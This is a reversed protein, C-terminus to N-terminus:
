SNEPLVQFNGQDRDHWNRVDGSNRCEELKDLELSAVAIGEVGEPTEALVAYEPFPEMSPTLIAATGYTTPVPECALSGVLSSIVVFIQNEVSRAQASWRVRQFGRRDQTFTPICLVLTGSEALNRAAQPFEVDYCVLTAVEGPVVGSGCSLGFEEREFVTLNIKPQSTIRGDPYATFALNMSSGARQVLHTGGIVTAKTSESTELLLGTFADEFEALFPPIEQPKLDSHGSLLEFTLNEPFVIVDAKRFKAKTALEKFHASFDAFGTCPRLKWNISAVIM